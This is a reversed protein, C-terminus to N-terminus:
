CTQSQLYDFVQQKYIAVIENGTGLNENNYWRTYRRRGDVTNLENWKATWQMVCDKAVYSDMHENKWLISNTNGRAYDPDDIQQYGYKQWDVSIKSSWYFFEETQITLPWFLVEHFPVEGSLIRNQTTYISDLSEDPLGVIFSGTVHIDHGYTQRIHQLTQIQAEPDYGKGIVRGAPLHFTEIGFFVARIGIDYLKAITHPHKALLDLRVYAWFKPKFPLDKVADLLTDLKEETDNFTDDLIRYDTIGFNHYNYLLENKITDIPKIYDVVEKGNLRHNCFACKFICGRSLELPLVEGPTIIDDKTWQMSSANFDFGDAVPDNILITKSGLIKQTKPLDTGHRLHNALNVISIDAYGIVAYDILDNKVAATTRSGGIVIKINPNKKLLYSKFITEYNSNKFTLFKSRHLFPISEKEHSNYNPTKVEGQGDMFTNSVGIFLTNPGVSLDVIRLLEQISFHNYFNIVLVSYGAKRLEHACKYAGFSKQPVRIVGTFLIVDYTKNTM